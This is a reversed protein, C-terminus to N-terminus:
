KLWQELNELRLSQTKLGLYNLNKLPRPTLDKVFFVLQDRQSDSGHSQSTLPWQMHLSIGTMGTLLTTSGFLMIPFFPPGLLLLLVLPQQGGGGFLCFILNKRFPSIEGLRTVSSGLTARPTHAELVARLWELCELIISVIKFALNCLLYFCPIQSPLASFLFASLSIVKKFAKEWQIGKEILSQEFLCAKVPIVRFAL